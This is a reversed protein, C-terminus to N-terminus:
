SLRSRLPVELRVRAGGESGPELSFGGGVEEMRRRMNELGHRGRAGATEAGAPGNGNDEIELTLRGAALRVRVRAESAQAHRVVNTVAEKAALFVNHRVEPPLTIEPVQDPVEQRYRLGAVTLYEQANKCLYTILGDLTDNRPNVAWVIEDLVRTTERATQSIQQAHSEVEDPEDKDSEVLEGLLAVQTLSAGLQDHLDRAIRARERELAEQQRLIAVQRKLRQTSVLHVTGVITGLLVGGALLLFWWTRWFPPQVIIALTAPRESWVGDENAAEVEFVYERPPLKTFYAVRVEGAYTWADEHGKLRYRFRAREPAALNLSTYHIELRRRDPPLSVGTIPAARLRVGGAPQGEIVVAEITVPPAFQNPMVEGATATALGKITPLRLRDNDGGAEPLDLNPGLTCERTPLGDAREFVRGELRDAKGAILAARNEATVRMLGAITGIWLNGLSDERFFGVSNSPLGEGTSLRLWRSEHLRALGDGDTGIWLAGDGSVHLTVVADGPLGDASKRFVTVAGDKLRNLGADSTGIWLNGEVDDALARVRNSSLGQETTFRRWERGDWRALGGEGGVWINGARDEHLALVVALGAAPIQEFRGDRWQMLGGAWLGVWLRDERDSLVARVPLRLLGEDFQEVEGNSFRSLGGGNYGVWLTGAEDQAVAQVVQGRTAEVTAFHQRRIRNLGGGDTGVWLSGERDTALALIYDNSLGEASAFRRAKGAGDFWFVGGGLTGVILNGAADECAATVSLGSGSWPYAGWDRTTKGDKVLRIRGDALRWHGGQGSALLWDLRGVSIVRGGPLSERSRVATPDIEYLTRDVGAWVAGDREAIVVRCADPRGDGLRWVDVSGDLHRALEGDATLLWVAGLKDQCSSVLKGRGDGGGIALRKVSSDRVLAVGADETGVWLGGERDEFLHVVQSSPLDPVNARDFVSFRRGDFRVLGNLTGMWLYGDRSQMVAIVSNRPLGDDTEWSRIAFAEGGFAEGDGRLQANGRLGGAFSAALSLVILRSLVAANDPWCGSRYLRNIGSGILDGM